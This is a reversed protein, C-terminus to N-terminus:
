LILKKLDVNCAQELCTLLMLMESGVATKFGKEIHLFFNLFFKNGGDYKLFEIFREKVKKKM